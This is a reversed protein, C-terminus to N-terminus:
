DRHLDEYLLRAACAPGRREALARIRVVRVTGDQAFTLVDGPELLTSAKAIVTGNRRIRGDQLQRAALSRTKFFRAHWLWKDARQAGAPESAPSGSDGGAM